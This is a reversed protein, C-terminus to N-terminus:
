PPSLVWGQKVGSIICFWSSIKNWEKVMTTKNEYMTNIMKIHKDPIGFLSLINTLARRDVSNFAQM